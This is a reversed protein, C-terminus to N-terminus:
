KLLKQVIKLFQEQKFPKQIWFTIKAEEAEKKKEQSIETTLMVVPLHRYETKSKVNKVLEIGNMKPMNLDTILLDVKDGQFYKLAEVGNGAKIINANIPKLTFEIVWLTNEFDDVIVINKKM